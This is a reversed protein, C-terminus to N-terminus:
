SEGCFVCVPREERMFYAAEHDCDERADEPSCVPCGLKVKDAPNDVPWTWVARKDHCVPCQVAKFESERVRM